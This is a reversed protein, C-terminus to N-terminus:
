EDEVEYWRSISGRFKFSHQGPEFSFLDEGSDTKGESPMGYLALEFPAESDIELTLDIKNGDEGSRVLSGRVHCDIYPNDEYTYSGGTPVHM